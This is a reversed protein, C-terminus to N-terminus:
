SATLAAFGAYFDLLDSEVKKAIIEVAPQMYAVRVKRLIDRAIVEEDPTLM